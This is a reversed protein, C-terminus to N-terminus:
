LNRFKKLFSNYIKQIIEIKSLHFFVQHLYDYLIGPKSVKLELGFASRTEFAYM